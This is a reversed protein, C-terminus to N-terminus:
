APRPGFIKNVYRTLDDLDNTANFLFYADEEDIDLLEAARTEVTRGVMRNNANVRVFSTYEGFLAGGCELWDPKDGSLLATWGAFCGATGCDTRKLWTKQDWQEPHAAIHDLVKWALETNPM